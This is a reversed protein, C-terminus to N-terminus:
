RSGRVPRDADEERIDALAALLRTVTEPPLEATPDLDNEETAAPAVGPGSTTQPAIIDLCAKRALEEKKCQTLQILAQAAQPAHRALILRAERYTRAIRQEFHECFREDALWRDYLAASVHHKDLVEQEKAKDAFLDEIVALQRRTLRKRESM